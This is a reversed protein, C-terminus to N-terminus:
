VEDTYLLFDNRSEWLSCATFAHVVNHGSPYAHVGGRRTRIFWTPNNGTFFVGSQQVLSGGIEIPSSSHMVFPILTRSIRKQEALISKESTDETRQIKFTKSFTKVFIIYLGSSRPGICSESSVPCPVAEYVVLQGSRLLVQLSCSYLLLVRAFSSQLAVCSFTLHQNM